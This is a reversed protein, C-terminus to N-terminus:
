IAPINKFDNKCNVKSLGLIECINESVYTIDGEDCLVLLFGDLAKLALHQDVVHKHILQLQIDKSKEEEELSKLPEIAPFDM